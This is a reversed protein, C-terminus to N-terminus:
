RGCSSCGTKQYFSPNIIGLSKNSIPVNSIKKIFESNYMKNGNVMVTPFAHIYKCKEANKNETCEIYNLNNIDNGLISKLNITHGCWNAGYITIKNNKIYDSKTVEKVTTKLVSKGLEKKNNVNKNMSGLNPNEIKKKPKSKVELVSVSKKNQIVKKKNVRKLPMIFNM